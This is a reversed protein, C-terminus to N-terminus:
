DVSPEEVIASSREFLRGTVAGFVFGGVHALYHPSGYISNGGVYPNLRTETQFPIWFDTATSNPEVGIFDRQAIGIITFPVSKIYIPQGIVSPDRGFRRTWYNYSLILNHSHEAEDQPTLLRGIEVRVGLGSFFNGSVLDGRAEEPEKGIRVPIRDFDLPVFAVLNAFISRENRLQAFTAFNFTYAPDGTEMAAQPAGTTQLYVLESPDPVPLYRLMVANMVSFIATNAGIGLVLTIVATATFAPSRSLQRLAYRLDWSLGNM